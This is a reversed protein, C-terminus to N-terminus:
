YFPGPDRNYSAQPLGQSDQKYTMQMYDMIIHYAYTSKLYMYKELIYLNLFLYVTNTHKTLTTSIKNQETFYFVVASLPYTSICDKTVSSLPPSTTSFFVKPIIYTAIAAMDFHCQYSYCKEYMKAKKCFNVGMACEQKNATLNVSIYPQESLLTNNLHWVCDDTEVQLWHM